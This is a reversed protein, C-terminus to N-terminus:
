WKKVLAEQVIEAKLREDSYMKKLRRNEEELQKVKAMLSADMRSYKSRWKYFTPSSIGQERCIQSVPVGNEAQKFISIIQADTFKSKKM